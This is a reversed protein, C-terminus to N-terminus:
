HRQSSDAPTNRESLSARLRKAAHFTRYARLKLLQKWRWRLDLDPHSCLIQVEKWLARATVLRQAFSDERLKSEIADRVLAEHGALAADRLWQSYVGLHAASRRSEWRRYTAASHVVTSVGGRRYMVLTDDITCATGSLVARLVNVQDEQTPGTALPGFRDFLRRTVAHAAGVIYPRIRVWDSVNRWEQLPDVRITGWTAGGEDMDLVHSALLDLTEESRDWAAATAAVRDRRSIDDGAMLVVLRGEASEMLANFHGGIGLNRANRRVVIRHPGDYRDAMQRIRAYTGDTSCDDSILIEIPECEQSLASALASEIFPEQNYTFVALTIRATMSRSHRGRQAAAFSLGAM